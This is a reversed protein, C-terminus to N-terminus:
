TSAGLGGDVGSLVRIGPLLLEEARSTVTVGDRGDGGGCVVHVSKGHHCPPSTTVASLIDAM